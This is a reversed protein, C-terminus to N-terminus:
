LGEQQPNMYLIAYFLLFQHAALNQPAYDQSQYMM